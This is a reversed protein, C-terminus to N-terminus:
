LIRIKKRSDSLKQDEAGSTHRDTTTQNVLFFAKCRSQHKSQWSHRTIHHLNSANAVGIGGAALCALVAVTIKNM